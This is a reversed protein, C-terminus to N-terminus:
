LMGEKKLYYRKFYTMRYWLFLTYFCFLAYGGTLVGDAFLDLCATVVFAVNMIIDVKDYLMVKILEHKAM